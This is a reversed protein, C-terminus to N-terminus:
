SYVVTSLLQMTVRSTAEIEERIQRRIDEVMLVATITVFVVVLATVLANIRFRLSLAPM